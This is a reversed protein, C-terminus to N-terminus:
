HCDIKENYFRLLIQGEELQVNSFTKLPLNCCKLKVSILFSYSWHFMGLKDIIFSFTRLYASSDKLQSPLIIVCCHFKGRTLKLMEWYLSCQIKELPKKRSIQSAWYETYTLIKFQFYTVRRSVKLLLILNMSLQPDPVASGRQIPQRNRKVFSTEKDKDVAWMTTSLRSPLHLIKLSKRRLRGM